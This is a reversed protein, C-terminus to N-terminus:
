KEDLQMKLQQYNMAKAQARQSDIFERQKDYRLRVVEELTRERDIM